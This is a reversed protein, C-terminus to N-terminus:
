VPLISVIIDLFINWDLICFGMHIFLCDFFFFRISPIFDSADIYFMFDRGGVCVFVCLCGPVCVLEAVLFCLSFAGASHPALSFNIM